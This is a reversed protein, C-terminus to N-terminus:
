KKNYWGVLNNGLYFAGGNTSKRDDVCGVWDINSIVILTFNKGKPYWLRYEMIGKPYRFIREVAIVHTEKSNEQFCAVM